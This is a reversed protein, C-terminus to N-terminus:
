LLRPVAKATGGRRCMGHFVVAVCVLYGEGGGGRGEQERRVKRVDFPKKTDTPIISGMERPDFLPEDWGELRKPEVQAAESLRGGGGGDGCGDGSSSGGSINRYATNSATGLNLNAVISRTIEIAHEDDDAFHDAVGSVRGAVRRVCPESMCTPTLPVPLPFSYLFLPDPAPTRPKPLPCLYPDRAPSSTRVFVHDSSRSPCSFSFVLGALALVDHEECGEVVKLM